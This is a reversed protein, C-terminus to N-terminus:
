FSLSERSLLSDVVYLIFDLLLKYVKHIIGPVRHNYRRKATDKSLSLLHANHSHPFNSDASCGSNLPNASPILHTSSYTVTPGSTGLGFSNIGM